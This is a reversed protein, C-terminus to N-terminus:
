RPPVVLLLVASSAPLSFFSLYFNSSSLSLITKYMHIYIRSYINYKINSLVNWQLANCSNSTCVQSCDAGKEILFKVVDVCDHKAAAM